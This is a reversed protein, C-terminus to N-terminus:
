LTSCPFEQALSAALAEGYPRDARDPHNALFRELTSLADSGKAGPPPCFVPKGSLSGATIVGTAFASAIVEAIMSTMSDDSKWDSLLRRASPSDASAPATLLIVALFIAGRMTRAGVRGVKGCRESMRESVLAALADVICILDHRLDDGLPKHLV